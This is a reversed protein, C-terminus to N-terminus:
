VHVRFTFSSATQSAHSARSNMFLAVTMTSTESDSDGRNEHGTVFFASIRHRFLGFYPIKTRIEPGGGARAPVKRLIWPEFWSM